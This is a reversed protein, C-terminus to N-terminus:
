AVGVKSFDTTFPELLALKANLGTPPELRLAGLAQQRDITGRTMTPDVGLAALTAASERMEAARRMGHVMMRDLNYDLRGAWEAGPWSANLSAVVEDLVGAARAAVACEASLAELGKVMVSRIMKISSAAGVAGGVVRVNTFGAASLSDRASTSHPGAVMLPAALGSPHVPAMVAVDAYRGGNEEIARAAARKTDPAVSNMDCFLAGAAISAATEVAAALAEDASVLSLILGAVLTADSNTGAIDVGSAALEALKAGRTGEGQVKRDYAILPKTLGGAFAQAAEGFGILAIRTDIM